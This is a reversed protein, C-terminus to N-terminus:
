VLAAVFTLTSFAHNLIEGGGTRTAKVVEVFLLMLTFAIFADSLTFRWVEKSPMAITFSQGLLAAADQGALGGGLAIM